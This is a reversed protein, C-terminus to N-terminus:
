GWTILLSDSKELLFPPKISSIGPYLSAWAISSTLKMWQSIYIFIHLIIDMMYTVFSVCTEGGTPRDIHAIRIMKEIDFIKIGSCLSLYISLSVLRHLSLFFLFINWFWDDYVDLRYEWMKAILSHVSCYICM